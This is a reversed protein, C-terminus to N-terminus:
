KRCKFELSPPANFTEAECPLCSAQRLQAYETVPTEAKSKDMEAVRKEVEMLEERVQVADAHRYPGAEVM